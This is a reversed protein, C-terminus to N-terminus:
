GSRIVPGAPFAPRHDDQRGVPNLTVGSRDLRDLLQHFDEASLRGRITTYRAVTEGQTEAFAM